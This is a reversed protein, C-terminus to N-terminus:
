TSARRSSRSRRRRLPELIIEWAKRARTSFSASCCEAWLRTKSTPRHLCRRPSSSGATVQIPTSYAYTNAPPNNPDYTTGRNLTPECPMSYYSFNIENGDGDMVNDGYYGSGPVTFSGPPASLNLTSPVSYIPSGGPSGNTANFNLPTYSYLGQTAALNVSVSGNAASLDYEYTGADANINVNYSCSTSGSGAATMAAVTFPAVTVGGNSDTLTLVYGGPNMAGSVSYNLSGGSLSLGTVSGDPNTLTAASIVTGNPASPDASGTLTLSSWSYSLLITSPSITSSGSFNSYLTEDPVGGQNAAVSGANGTIDFRRTYIRRFMSADLDLM